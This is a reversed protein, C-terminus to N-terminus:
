EKCFVIPLCKKDTTNYSGCNPCFNDIRRREKCVSCQGVVHFDDTTEKHLWKGRVVLRVDAPPLEALWQDVRKLADEYVEGADRLIGTNNFATELFREKLLAKVINKDLFYQDNM